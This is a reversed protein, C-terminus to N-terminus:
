PSVHNGVRFRYWHDREHRLGSLEVHVTHAAKARATATGRRVIKKFREDTAVEWQVPFDTSPMGGLGDEALPNPALRTWIVFGEPDPDGSAIGLTFPDSPLTGRGRAPAALASGSPLTVAAAAGVALGTTVLFTRRNLAHRVEAM